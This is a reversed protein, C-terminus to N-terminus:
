SAAVLSSLLKIKWDLKKLQAAQIRLLVNKSYNSNTTFSKYYKHLISYSAIAVIYHKIYAHPQVLFVEGIKQQLFSSFILFIIKIGSKIGKILDQM